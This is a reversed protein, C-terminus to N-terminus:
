RCDAVSVEPKQPNYQVRCSPRSRPLALRVGAEDAARIGSDAWTGYQRGAVSYAVRYEAKWTLEGGGTQLVHDAVIRTGQINGQADMWKMERSRRYLVAVLFTALLWVAAVLPTTRSDLTWKVRSTMLDLLFARGRKEVKM